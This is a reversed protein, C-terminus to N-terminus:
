AARMSSKALRMENRRTEQESLVDRTRAVFQLIDAEPTANQRHWVEVCKVIVAIANPFCGCCKGRKEMAHYVMGVTIVQWADKALFEDVVSKIDNETIINCQCVIM